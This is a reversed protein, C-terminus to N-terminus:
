GFDISKNNRNNTTHRISPLQAKKFDQYSANIANDEFRNIGKNRSVQTKTHDLKIAENDSYLAKDIKQDSRNQFDLEEVKETQIGQSMTMGIVM